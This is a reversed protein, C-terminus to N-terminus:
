IEISGESTAFAVKNGSFDYAVDHQTKLFTNVIMGDTKVETM